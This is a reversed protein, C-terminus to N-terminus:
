VEPTIVQIKKSGAKKSYHKVNEDDSSEDRQRYATYHTDSILHIHSVLSIGDKNVMRFYWFPQKNLCLVGDM